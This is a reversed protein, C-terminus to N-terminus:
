RLLIKMQPSMEKGDGTQVTTNVNSMSINGKKPEHFGSLFNKEGAQPQWASFGSVKLLIRVERFPFAKGEKSASWFPTSRTM